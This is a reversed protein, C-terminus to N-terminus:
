GKAASGIAYAQNSLGLHNSPGLVMRWPPDPHETLGLRRLTAAAESNTELLGVRLKAGGVEAALSELLDSPRQLRPQVIWPGASVLHNGRRGMIFGTLQGDCEIVKGLEPYLSLNRELFFRRDAGFARRDMEGVTELDAGQM